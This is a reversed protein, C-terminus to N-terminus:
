LRPLSRRGTDLPSSSGQSHSGTQGEWLGHPTGPLRPVTIPGGARPSSGQGRYKQKRGCGWPLPPALVAQGGSLVDMVGCNGTNAGVRPWWFTPSTTPLM